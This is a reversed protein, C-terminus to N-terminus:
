RIILSAGFFLTARCFIRDGVEIDGYDVTYGEHKSSDYMGLKEPNFTASVDGCQIKIFKREPDVATVTGVTRTTYNTIGDTVDILHEGENIDLEMTFASLRGGSISARIVDNVELSAVADQINESTKVNMTSWHPKSSSNYLELGIGISGDDEAYTYKGCVVATIASDPNVTGNASTKMVALGAIDFEDLNYFNLAVTEEEILSPAGYLYLKEQTVDDSVTFFGTTNSLSYKCDIFVIRSYTNTWNVKVSQTGGFRIQDPDGAEEASERITDIFTVKGDNNVKYRIPENCITSELNKLQTYANEKKVGEVGDITVKDYLEYSKWENDMTFVRILTESSLGSNLQGIRTLVGYKQISGKSSFDAIKGEFDLLFTGSTGIKLDPIESNSQQAEEYASSVDYWLGEDDIYVRHNEVGTIQGTAVGESLIIIMDTKAPNEVISIIQGKLVSAISSAKGDKRFHVSVNKEDFKISASDNFTRNNALVITENFHSVREVKHTEYQFIIITTIDGDREPACLRVEGNFDSNLVAFLETSNKAVGNVIGRDVQKLSLKQEAGAMDYYLVGNEIQSIAKAGITITADDEDNALMILEPIGTSENAVALAIVRHGLYDEVNELKETSFLGNNIKIKDKMKSGTSYLDFGYQATVMGIVLEADFSNNLLTSGEIEKYENTAGFTAQQILNVQLANYLMQALEGRTISKKGNFDIGKFLKIREACLSRPYEGGYRSDYVDYGLAGVIYYAAEHQTIYRTESADKYKENNTAIATGRSMKSLIGKLESYPVFEDEIFKGEENLQMLDLGLMVNAANPYQLVVETTEDDSSGELYDYFYVRDMDVLDDMYADYANEAYAVQSFALLLALLVLLIKKM